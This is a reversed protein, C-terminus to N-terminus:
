PMYGIKKITTKILQEKRVEYNRISAYGKPSSPASEFAKNNRFSSINSKHHNEVNPTKKKLEEARRQEIKQYVEMRQKLWEPNKTRKVFSDGGLKLGEDM